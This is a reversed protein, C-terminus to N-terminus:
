AFKQSNKYGQMELNVTTHDETKGRSCQNKVSEALIGPYFFLREHLTHEIDMGLWRDYIICLIYKAVPKYKYRLPTVCM